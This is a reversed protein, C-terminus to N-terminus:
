DKAGGRGEIDTWAGGEESKVATNSSKSPISGIDFGINDPAVAVRGVDTTYM